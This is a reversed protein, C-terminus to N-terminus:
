GSPSNLPPGNESKAVAQPPLFNALIRAAATRGRSQPKGELTETAFILLAAHARAFLTDLEQRTL